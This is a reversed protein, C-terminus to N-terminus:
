GGLPSVENNEWRPEITSYKLVDLSNQLILSALSYLLAFLPAALPFFFGCVIAPPSLMHERGETKCTHSLSWTGPEPDTEFSKVALM